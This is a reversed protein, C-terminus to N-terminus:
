KSTIIFEEIISIYLPRPMFNVDRRWRTSLNLFRPAIYGSGGYTKM